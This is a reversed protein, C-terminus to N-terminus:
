WRLGVLERNWTGPTSAIGLAHGPEFFEAEALGMEISSSFVVWSDGGDDSYLLDLTGYEGSSGSAAPNLFVWGADDRIAGPGWRRSISEQMDGLQMRSSASFTSDGYSDGMIASGQAILRGNESVHVGLAPPGTFNVISEWEPNMLSSRAIEFADALGIGTAVLITGDSVSDIGYITQSSIMTREEWEGNHYLFFTGFSGGVMFTRPGHAHAAHFHTRTPVGNETEVSSYWFADEPIRARRELTEVAWTDGGDSTIAVTLNTDAIIGHRRDYFSVAELRNTFGPIEVDQW